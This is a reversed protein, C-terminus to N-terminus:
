YTQLLLPGEEAAVHGISDEPESAPGPSGFIPRGSASESPKAAKTDIERLQWHFIKEIEENM